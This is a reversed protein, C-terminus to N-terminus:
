DGGEYEKVINHFVLDDHLEMAIKAKRRLEATKSRQHQAANVQDLCRGCRRTICDEKLVSSSYRDGCMKCVYAFM